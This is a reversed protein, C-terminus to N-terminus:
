FDVSLEASTGLSCAIYKVVKPSEGPSGTNIALPIGMFLTYADGYWVRLEEGEKIMRTAQYYLSCDQQILALNQEGPYRACKIFKM